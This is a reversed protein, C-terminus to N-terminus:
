QFNICGRFKLCYFMMNAKFRKKKKLLGIAVISYSSGSSANLRGGEREEKHEPPLKHANLSLGRRMLFWVDSVDSSYIIQEPPREPM